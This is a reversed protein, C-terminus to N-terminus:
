SACQSLSYNLRLLKKGHGAASLVIKEENRENSIGKLYDILYGYFIPLGKRLEESSPLPGALKLTKEEALSLVEDRHSELFEFLMKDGQKFNM